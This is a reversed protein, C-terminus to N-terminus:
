GEEEKEEQKKEAIRKGPEFYTHVMLPNLFQLAQNQAKRILLKFHWYFVYSDISVPASYVHFM